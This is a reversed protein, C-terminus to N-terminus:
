KLKRYILCCIEIICGFFVIIVAVNMVDGMKPVFRSSHRIVEKYKWTQKKNNDSRDKNDVKKDKGHGQQNSGSESKKDKEKEWKATLIKDSHVPTSFDWKRELGQEDTYYWGIFVYGAKKPDRPEVVTNGGDVKQSKPTDIGGKTDFSVEHKGTLTVVIEVKAEDELSFILKFTGTYGNQKQVNIKQLQEANIGPKINDGYKNKAKAKCLTIIEDKTFGIGGTPYILNDAGLSPDGIKWVSSDLGEENLYVTVTVRTGDPTSFTLPYEGTKGATKADNINEIEKRDPLFIQKIDIVCDDSSLARVRSIEKLQKETFKTGGTRSIVHNAKIVEKSHPNENTKDYEGYLTVTIVAKKEDPSTFTLKFIGGKGSAKVQNIVALEKDNVKFDGIQHTVGDADKGQVSSFSRVDDESFAAGGSDREFDNAGITPQLHKSDMEAVDTGNAKLYVMVTTKTRNPTSFTLPFEGIKGATKAENIMMIQKKDEFYLEEELFDNGNEKKGTVMTITKLQGETFAKGGSKTIVHNAGIQEKTDKEIENTDRFPGFYVKTCFKDVNIATKDKFPTGDVFIYDTLSIGDQIYGQYGFDPVVAVNSVKDKGAGSGIGPMNTDEDGVAIVVTDGGSILMNEFENLDTLAGKAAGIGPAYKGGQADVHGGSIYIGDVKSGYGTGIGAGYQTGVAKINGGSIVINKAYGKGMRWSVCAVGIGATHLGASAEINGGKITFNSFGCNKEDTVNRMSSGIAGVHWLSPNGKAVLYGCSNDCKHGKNDAKECQITLTGDMGDKTIANGTNDGVMDASRGTNCILNNSGILTITVNAHSVNICDWKSTTTDVKGITINVNDLTINTTVGESVEINNSSTTGTIWYGKPNLKTENELLGGGAAGDKTIRIDGKSVDLFTQGNSALENESRVIEKTPNKRRDEDTTKELSKTQVSEKIKAGETQNTNETKKESM